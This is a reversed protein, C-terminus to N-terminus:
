KRIPDYAPMAGVNEARRKYRRIAATTTAGGFEEAKHWPVFDSGRHGSRPVQDAHAAL